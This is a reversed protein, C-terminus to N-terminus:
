LPVATGTRYRLFAWNALVSRILPVPKKMSFARRRWCAKYRCHHLEEVYRAFFEDLGSEWRESLYGFLADDVFFTDPGFHQGLDNMMDLLGHQGQSEVRLQLDLCMAIMAGKDYVSNYEENFLDLVHESMVTMPLYADYNDASRLKSELESIFEGFSMLGQRVQVLVSTYETVGEYLWLHKSMSHISISTM